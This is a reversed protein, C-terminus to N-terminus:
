AVQSIYFEDTDCTRLHGIYTDENFFFNKKVPILLKLIASLFTCVVFLGVNDILM